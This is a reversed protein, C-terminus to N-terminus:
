NQPEKSIIAFSHSSIKNIIKILLKIVVTFYLYYSSFVNEFIKQHILPILELDGFVRLLFFFLVM